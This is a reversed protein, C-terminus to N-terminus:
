SDPQEEYTLEFNFKTTTEGFSLLKKNLFFKSGLKIIFGKLSFSKIYNTMNANSLNHEEKVLNRGTTEFVLDKHM